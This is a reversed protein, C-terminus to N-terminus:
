CPPVPSPPPMRRRQRMSGAASGTPLPPSFWANGWCLFIVVRPVPQFPSEQRAFIREQMCHLHLAAQNRGDFATGRLSRNDDLRILGSEVPFTLPVTKVIPEKHMCYPRSRFTRSKWTLISSRTRRRTNEGEWSGESRLASSRNWGTLCGLWGCVIVPFSPISM